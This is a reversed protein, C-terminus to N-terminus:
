HFEPVELMLMQPTGHIRAAMRLVEAQRRILREHPSMNRQVYWAVAAETSFARTLRELLPRPRPYISLRYDGPELDARSAALAIAHNLDGLEDVLGVEMAARGTYVRGAGLARVSDATLGRGEAVRSVFAGYVRDTLNQLLQRELETVPEGVAFIGAAPGTQLTDLTVGLSGQLFDTADFFVSIVGISGTITAEEAVIAHAPAAIYYGGSAAVSAMSVVVPLREAADRVAAWMADSATASGGPSDVRIVVARTRDDRVAEQLTDVFRKSALFDGEEGPMIMGTAYVVAVRNRRDGLQVGAEGAPVRAYDRLSITRLDVDADQRTHPRWLNEVEHEYTLADLLGLTMADAAAYVGGEAIIGDIAARDLPRSAAVADRYRSDFAEVIERTQQRNEESFGRETLNEAAAKFEGARIVIPEIGLREFAEGFFPVSIHIGNLEFMAEPPSYVTDAATALYYATEHFGNDGSSAILPKGSERFRDLAGRLEALTAWSAAIGSPRLWVGVIRDDAAAKDLAEVADRLTTVRGTFLEQFPDRPQEEPLAGSLDLVLVTRNAVSPTTDAAAMIGVVILFLFFFAALVGLFAAVVNLIFRM